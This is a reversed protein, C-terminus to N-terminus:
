LYRLSRSISIGAALSLVYSPQADESLIALNM